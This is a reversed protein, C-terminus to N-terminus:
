LQQVHSFAYYFSVGIVKPLRTSSFNQTYLGMVIYFLTKSKPNLFHTPKIKLDLLIQCIMIYCTAIKFQLYSKGLYNSPYGQSFFYLNSINKALLHILHLKWLIPTNNARKSKCQYVMHNM